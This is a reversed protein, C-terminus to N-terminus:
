RGFLNFAYGLDVSFVATDRDDLDRLSFNVSTGALAAPFYNAGIIPSDGVFGASVAWEPAVAVGFGGLLGPENDSALHSGAGLTAMVENGGINYLFTAVATASEENDSADGWAALNSASLAFSGIGGSFSFQRSAGVTLFGSAGFDRFSTNVVGFDIAMGNVADGLGFALSTSADFRTDGPGREPGYSGSLSVSATGSSLGFGSPVAAIGARRVVSDSILQGALAAELDSALAELDAESQASAAGVGLMLGCFGTAILRLIPRMM